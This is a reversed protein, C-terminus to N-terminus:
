HHDRAGAAFAHAAAGEVPIHIRLHLVASARQREARLTDAVTGINVAWQSQDIENPTPAGNENFRHCARWRHCCRRNITIATRSRRRRGDADREPDWERNEHLYAGAVIVITVVIDITAVTVASGGDSDFTRFPTDDIQWPGVSHWQLHSVHATAQHREGLEHTVFRCQQFKASLVTSVATNAASNYVNKENRGDCDYDLITIIIKSRYESDGCIQERKTKANKKGAWHKDLFRFKESQKGLASLMSAHKGADSHVADNVGDINNHALIKLEALSAFNEVSEFLNRYPTFISIPHPAPAWCPKSACLTCHKVTHTHKGQPTAELASQCRRKSGGGFAATSLLQYEISRAHIRGM